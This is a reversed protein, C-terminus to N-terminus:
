RSRTYAPYSFSTCCGFSTQFITSLQSLEVGCTKLGKGGERSFFMAIAGMMLVGWRSNSFWFTTMAAMAVREHFHTYRM